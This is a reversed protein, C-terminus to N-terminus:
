NRSDLKGCRGCVSWGSKYEVRPGCGRCYVNAVRTSRTWLVGCCRFCASATFWHFWRYRNEVRATKQLAGCSNRM